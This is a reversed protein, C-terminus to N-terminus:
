IKTSKWLMFLTFGIWLFTTGFSEQIVHYLEMELSDSVKEIAIIKACSTSCPLSVRLKVILNRYLAM